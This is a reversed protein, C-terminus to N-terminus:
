YSRIIKSFNPFMYVGNIQLWYGNRGDDTKHPRSLGIRLFLEDQRHMLENVDDVSIKKGTGVNDFFGLDTVSLWSLRGAGSDEVHGKIKEYSETVVLQTPKIKLTVISVKPTEGLPIVKDTIAVGFGESLTSVSTKELIDRFESTSCAGVKQMGDVHADETHPASTGPIPTFTGSLITGPLVDHKRLTEYEYYSNRAPKPRMPRVCRESGDLAIGAMCLIEKNSFRTLDTVVIKM